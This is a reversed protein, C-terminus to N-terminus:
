KKTKQYKCHFEVRLGSGDKALRTYDWPGANKSTKRAFSFEDVVGRPDGTHGLILGDKLSIDFLSEGSVFRKNGNDYIVYSKIDGFVAQRSNVRFHIETLVHDEHLACKLLQPQFDIDWPMPPM